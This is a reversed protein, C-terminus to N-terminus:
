IDTRKDSKKKAEVLRPLEKELCYRIVQIQTVGLMKTVDRLKDM